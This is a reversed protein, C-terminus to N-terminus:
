YPTKSDRRRSEFELGVKFDNTLLFPAKRAIVVEEPGTEAHHCSKIPKPIREYM